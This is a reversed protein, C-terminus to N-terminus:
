IQKFELNDYDRIRGPSLAKDYIHIFCLVCSEYFLSIKDKAYEQLADNLPERLFATSVHSKRKPLLGPMQVCLIRNQETIEIHHALAAAKMYNQKAKVDSAYVLNRLNCTIREARLAAHLSLEEYNSRYRSIDTTQMAFVVNKLRNIEDSVQELRKTLTAQM